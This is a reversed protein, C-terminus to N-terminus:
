VQRSKGLGAALLRYKLIEQIRSRYPLEKGFEWLEWGRQAQIRGELTIGEWIGEIKLRESGPDQELLRSGAGTLYNRVLNRCNEAKRLRSGAGTLYNRVLNGCNGIELRQSGPDQRGCAWNGSQQDIKHNLCQQDSGCDILIMSVGTCKM